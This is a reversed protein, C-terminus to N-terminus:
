KLKKQLWDKGDVFRSVIFSAVYDGAANVMTAPPDILNALAISIPYAIALQEPFFITCLVLDGTGGGGPIGSMAVSSFVAVVIAMIARGTGFDMGFIGFLFAVKVIAGMASGDMHMTAGLPLVIESVDKSIGTNEAAEMNTPITAVSSCTGFSVAAPAFLHRFMVKAAGKGGGFRAYVPSSILMYAFCVVYYIILTRGYDGILEPGYTAVLCAFFGFFGIPAYYTIIKVVKMICKSLDALLKATMTEPGGAMQIGFGFLIAAVILPLIAKRSWLEAFDPTTLFNVIMEAVSLGEEVEGEVIEYTGTTLPFIRVVVYMLLSAIAATILFTVVTTGLVKGARGVGTMNAIASAISCFVMPVAVCFMLNIFITGLPELATAGPWVAGVICGAVIGILMSIIFWYNKLIKRVSM